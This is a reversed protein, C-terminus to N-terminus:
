RPPRSSWRRLRQVVLYALTVKMMSPSGVTTSNSCPLSGYECWPLGFRKEVDGLIEANRELVGAAAAAGARGAV